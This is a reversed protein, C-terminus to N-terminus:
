LFDSIRFGFDSVFGLDLDSFNSVKNGAPKLTQSESNQIQKRNLTESKPNPKESNM